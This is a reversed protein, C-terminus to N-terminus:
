GRDPTVTVPLGVIATFRGSTAPETIIIIMKDGVEEGNQRRGKVGNITNGTGTNPRRLYGHYIYVSKDVM